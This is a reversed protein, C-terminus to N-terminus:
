APTFSVPLAALGRAIITPAWVLSAPDVDLAVDPLRDLLVEVSTRAITEAIEQAPLPCRHSGHGFALHAQNGDAVDPRVHPDANAAALGVVLLDGIQIRQTGLRTARTAWRGLSNAFPSDEWLVEAMAQAVSRRGGALTTAFRRDTLMLRLTNGIWGSTNIQGMVFLILLDEALEEDSLSAPHTALRSFLDHGPNARREAAYRRVAVRLRANAEPLGPQQHLVVALDRMFAASEDPAMGLMSAVAALPIQMAYQGILDAKGDAVFSDILRDAIRELRTQLELSDVTALADHIALSRRDHRPGDGWFVTDQWTVPPRHVWAPPALDWANWLRSDKAFLDPQSLVYHLERYGLVLWAPVDDDLLVPAVPGFHARLARYFAAPDENYDPGYMRPADAHAPYRGAYTLDAM